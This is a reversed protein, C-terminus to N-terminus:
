GELLTKSLRNLQTRLSTDFLLSGAHVRFGTILEPKIEEVFDIEKNMHKAIQMRLTEKTDTDLAFPLEAIAKIKGTIEQRYKDYMYAIRPLLSMRNRCLLVLLFQLFIPQGKYSSMIKKLETQKKTLSVKPNQAWKLFTNEEKEYLAVFMDLESQVEDLCEKKYALHLLAKAYRPAINGSNM